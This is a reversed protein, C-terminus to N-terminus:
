KLEKKYMVIELFDALREFSLIDVVLPILKGVPKAREFGKKLEDDIPLDWIGSKTKDTFFFSTRIFGDWISLWFVTKKAYLGKCLWAKGDNYYRWQIELGHETTVTDILQKYVVFLLKGTAKELVSNTPVVGEDSLLMTETDIKMM